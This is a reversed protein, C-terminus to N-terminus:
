CHNVKDGELVGRIAGNQKRKGQNTDERVSVLSKPTSDLKVEKDIEVKRLNFLSQFLSMYCGPAVCRTYYHDHNLGSLASGKVREPSLLTNPILCLTEGQAVINLGKLSTILVNYRQLTSSLPARLLTVTCSM